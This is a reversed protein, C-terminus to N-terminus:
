TRVVSPEGENVVSLVSVQANWSSVRRHMSEKGLNVRRQESQYVVEATEDLVALDM